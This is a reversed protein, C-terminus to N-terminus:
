LFRSDAHRDHSKERIRSREGSEPLQWFDSCVGDLDVGVITGKLSM